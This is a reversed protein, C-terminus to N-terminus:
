IRQMGRKPRPEALQDSTPQRDHLGAHPPHRAGTEGGGGAGGTPEPDEGGDGHGGLLQLVGHAAHLLAGVCREPHVEPGVLRVQGLSDGEHDALTHPQHRECTGGGLLGDGATVLGADDDHRGHPGSAVGLLHELHAHVGDDGLAALAAAM